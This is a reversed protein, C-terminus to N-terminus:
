WYDVGTDVSYDQCVQGTGVRWAGALALLWYGATMVPAPSGSLARRQGKM